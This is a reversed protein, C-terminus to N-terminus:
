QLRSPVDATYRIFLQYISESPVQAHYDHLNNLRILSCSMPHRSRVSSSTPGQPPEVEIRNVLVTFDESKRVPLGPLPVQQKFTSPDGLMTLLHACPVTLSTLITAVSGDFAAVICVFESMM